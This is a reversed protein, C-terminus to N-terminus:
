VGKVAPPLPPEAGMCVAGDWVGEWTVKKLKAQDCLLKVREKGSKNLYLNFVDKQSSESWKTIGGTQAIGITDVCVQEDNVTNLTLFDPCYNIVPPWAGDYTEQGSAPFWRYGFYWTTFILGFFIIGAAIEQQKSYFYYAGGTISISSLFVYFWFLYNMEISIASIRLSIYDSLIDNHIAQLSSQLKVV